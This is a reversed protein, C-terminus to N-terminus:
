QAIVVYDSCITFNDTYKISAYEKNDLEYKAEKNLTAMFAKCAKSICTAKVTTIKEGGACYINYKKM